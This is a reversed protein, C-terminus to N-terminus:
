VPDKVVCEEVDVRVAYQLGLRLHQRLHFFGGYQLEQRFRHHHLQVAVHGDNGANKFDLSHIM